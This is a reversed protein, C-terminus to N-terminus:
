LEARLVNLGKAVQRVRDKFAPKNKKGETKDPDKLAGPFHRDFLGTLRELTPRDPEQKLKELWSEIGGPKWFADKNSEWKERELQSELERALPTLSQLKAELEQQRSAAKQEALREREEQARQAAIRKEYETRLEAIRAKTKAHWCNLQDANPGSGIGTKADAEVSDVEVLVWGFPILGTRADKDPAALWVTKSEKEFTPKENRGRMIKISRVGNLTMAEAGSHRGLRLIFRNSKLWFRQDNLIDNIKRRWAPDLYNQKALLEMEAELLPRYFENCANVIDRSTWRLDKALLKDEHGSIASQFNITGLFTEHCFAPICELLQYLGRQEAQSRVAQGNVKVPHKKRNVAFSIESAPLERTSIGHADSISVLRMPDKHLERMSYQFLREQLERNKVERGSNSGGNISDLLATRIAGKISSGPLFPKRSSPLYSTREIGLKNIVTKGDGERQATKGIRKDYLAAVGTSVPVFKLANVMFTERNLHFFSQVRKLMDSNPRGSAITLLSQKEKEPLSQGGTHPDFEYLADDDIVYNTPEYTEDCGIHVPALTSFKLTHHSMFKM